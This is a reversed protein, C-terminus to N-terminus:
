RPPHYISSIWSSPALSVEVSLLYPPDLDAPIRIRLTLAGEEHVNPSISVPELPPLSGRNCYPGSCPMRHENMPSQNESANKQHLNVKDNAPTGHGRIVYDGCGAQLPLPATLIVLLLGAAGITIRFMGAILHHKM